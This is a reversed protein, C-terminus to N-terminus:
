GTLFVAVIDFLWNVLLDFAGEILHGLLQEKRNM